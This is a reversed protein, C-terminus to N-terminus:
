DEEGGVFALPLRHGRKRFRFSLLSPFSEEIPMHISLLLFVLFHPAWTWAIRDFGRFSRVDLYFSNERRDPLARRGTRLVREEMNRRSSAANEALHFYVIVLRQTSNQYSLFGSPFVLVSKSM